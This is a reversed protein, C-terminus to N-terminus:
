LFKRKLREMIVKLFHVISSDVLIFLVSNCSNCWWWICFLSTINILYGPKQIHFCDLKTHVTDSLNTYNKHWIKYFNLDDYQDCSKRMLVKGFHFIKGLKFKTGYEGTIYTIERALPRTVIVQQYLNLFQFSKLM